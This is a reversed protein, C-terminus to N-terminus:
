VKLGQHLGQAIGVALHALKRRLRQTV